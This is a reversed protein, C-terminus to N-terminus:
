TSLRMRRTALREIRAEDIEHGLGPQTLPVGVVGGSSRVPPTVFVPGGAPDSVDSPLTCGPLAALAVAAAQGIGFSGCGSCWVDWGAAYALDHASRAATLGGLRDLRLHLARGAQLSLAADLTDLDGVAPAVATGVRLQLRAHAALDGSPFPREIAALGYADLAELVAMHDASETYAHGADAVLALAPYAQRIARVPEIDWGPRVDLTVRTHGAGVAKNVRLTVTDLAPEPSIHSGTVISTRTGGLAHALPLGRTRCWLDWCATDVAAAAESAGLDAAASVDEPRDWDLGILAPGMREEIDAWAPGAGAAGGPVPMEGWGVADGGGHLRVLVSEPRRGRPMAVHFADCGQILPM